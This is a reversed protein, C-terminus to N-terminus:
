IAPSDTQSLLTLFRERDTELTDVSSELSVYYFSGAIFLAAAITAFFAANTEFAYRALYALGIPATILPYFLFALFAFKSASSRKWGDSPNQARPSRTSGINGIGMLFLLMVASICAAEGVRLWTVPMKLVICALTVLSVEAVVFFAAAINKAILVTSPQVPAVFYMQAATRDFGFSNYFVVESLLVLAYLVVVTLFNQGMWGPSSGSQMRAMPLWILVGFTFGMMFVIRFRSTRSLFRVEKEVLVGLPDRFIYRPWGLIRDLFGTGTAADSSRQAAADFRLNKRFQWRSFAWGLITMAGLAAWPIWGNENLAAESAALWPLWFKPVDRMWLFYKAAGSGQSSLWSPLAALLIIVLIAAERIRKKQFWRTILDRLGAGLTINFAAYLLPGLACWKPLAPNRLIGITIGLMVIPMECFLTTRMLMEIRFLDREAIPYVLIKKFDLMGGVSAMLLPMGQWYAFAFFLAIPMARRARELNEPEGVFNAAFVAIGAFGGYWIASFLLSFVFSARGHRRYFNLWIRWQTIFLTWAQSNV